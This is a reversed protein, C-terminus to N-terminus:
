YKQERWSAFRDFYGHLDVLPLLRNNGTWSLTNALTGNLFEM